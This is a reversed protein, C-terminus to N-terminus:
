VLVASPVAPGVPGQTIAFGLCWFGASAPHTSLTHHRSAVRGLSVKSAEGRRLKVKSEIM